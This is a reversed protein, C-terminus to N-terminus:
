ATVERRHQYRRRLWQATPRQLWDSVLPKLAARFDARSYVEHQDPGMLPALLASATIDAASLRDGVLFERGDALQTDLYDLTDSIAQRSRTVRAADFGLKRRFIERLVPFASRIFRKQLPSADLTWLRIVADADDLVANYAYRTVHAGVRDLRAELELVQKHLDPDRPLLHFGPMNSDLWMLIRTSDQVYGGGHRLIPVTTGIRGHRLAPLVHFFPTWRIEQYEIGAADLMWRAKESFHSMRFTYLELVPM